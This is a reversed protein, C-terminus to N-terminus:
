FALSVRQTTEVWVTAGCTLPKNPSYVISAVRNGLDDYIHVKRVKYNKKGVKVSIPNNTENNQKNKRIVHQNVHIRKLLGPRTGM